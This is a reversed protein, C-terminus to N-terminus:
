LSGKIQNHIEMNADQRHTAILPVSFRRYAMQGYPEGTDTGRKM